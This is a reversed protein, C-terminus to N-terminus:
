NGGNSAEREAKEWRLRRSEVVRAEHASARAAKKAAAIAGAREHLGDYAEWLAGRARRLLEENGGELAELLLQKEALYGIAFSPDNAAIDKTNSLLDALKVDKVWRPAKSIRQRDLQKRFARNGASKEVDSLLTVGYQINLALVPGFEDKFEAYIDDLTVDTDEVTDHLFAVAIQIDTGGVSRVTEAVEALHVVYPAGSYKRVQHGGVIDGAHARAAFNMAKQIVDM